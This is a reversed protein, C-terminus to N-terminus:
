QFEVIFILQTLNTKTKLKKGITLSFVRFRIMKPCIYLTLTNFPTVKQTLVEVKPISIKSFIKM